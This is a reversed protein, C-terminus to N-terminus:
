CVPLMRTTSNKNSQPPEIHTCERGLIHAINVSTWALLDEMKALVKVQLKGTLNCM